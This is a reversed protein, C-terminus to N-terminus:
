CIKAKLREALTEGLLEADDASGSIKGTEMRGDSDAYMGTLVIENGHLQAYAAVPASCGCDLTKLFQREARSVMESERNHFGSLYSHDDGKRGQVALIGQGVSPIMEDATFIRSVRDQLSLRILGAEALILASYAGNDLKSLRTPVNGRIPKIEFDNYLKRFQLTRRLSSSGIPKSNDMM